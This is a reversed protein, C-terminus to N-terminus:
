DNLLERVRLEQKKILFKILNEDQKLCSIHLEELSNEKIKKLIFESEIGLNFWDPIYDQDLWINFSEMTSYNKPIAEIKVFDSDKKDDIGYKNLIHTHSHNDLDYYINDKTVILSFFKSM